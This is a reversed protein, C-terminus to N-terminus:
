DRLAEALRTKIGEVGQSMRGARVDGPKWSLPPEPVRKDASVLRNAEDVAALSSAPLKPLPLAPM